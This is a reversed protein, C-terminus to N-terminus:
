KDVLINVKGYFYSDMVSFFFYSSVNMISLYHFISEKTIDSSRQKHTQRFTSKKIASLERDTQRVTSKKIESIQM